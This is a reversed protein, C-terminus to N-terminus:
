VPYPKPEVREIINEEIQQTNFNYGIIRDGSQLEEIAVNGNSTLIMTGIGFGGGYNAAWASNANSCNFILFVVLNIIILKLM